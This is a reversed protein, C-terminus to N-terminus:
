SGGEGHGAPPPVVTEFLIGADAPPFPARPDIRRMIRAIREGVLIPAYAQWGRVPAESADRRLIRVAGFARELTYGPVALDPDETVLHSVTAALPAGSRGVAARTAVDYFPVARHLHYYGPLNFHPRDLHWVAGVGPAASLHRYAAFVPDQDRIFRVAGTEKSWARYVRQQSPLANLIGAASVAALLGAACIASGPKGACM